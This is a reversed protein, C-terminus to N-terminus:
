PTRDCAIQTIERVSGSNRPGGDLSGLDRHLQNSAVRGAPFDLQNVIRTALVARQRHLASEVIEAELQLALDLCNFFERGVERTFRTASQCFRQRATLSPM